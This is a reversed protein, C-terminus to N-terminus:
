PRPTHGRGDDVADRREIERHSRKGPRERLRPAGFYLHMKCLSLALPRFEPVAAHQDPAIRFKGFAAEARSTSKALKRAHRSQPNGSRPTKLPKPMPATRDDSPANTSPSIACCVALAPRM